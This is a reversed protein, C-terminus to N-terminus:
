PLTYTMGITLQLSNKRFGPPPNNLYSDIFGSSANLRKYVPMTLLANFAGAYANTNNWTPTLTLHEDLTLGHKFKRNFEEVFISGILDQNAPIVDPANQFEQRIYSVSAKLDLTENARKIVTWGIGGSYTQQLDLGQSFNHDFAGQGFVYLRPSFYQDREADGHFIATKISPTGPQMVEGYAANLNLSMRNRPELWDETPIGRVLSVAGTFSESNQTANVVAAGITIAGKWDEFFGPEHTLAKEFGAQDIILSADAVPISRPPEPPATLRVQQDQVGLTGQAINAADGPKRIRVGKPIVAVKASSELEKVKSWDVTIDGLTDSHFTVASGTSKVFHGTLKEGDTFLLVDPNPKAQGAPQGSAHPVVFVELLLLLAGAPVDPLYKWLVIRM